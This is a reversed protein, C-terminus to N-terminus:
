RFNRADPFLEQQLVKKRVQTKKNETKFPFGDKEDRPSLTLVSVELEGDETLACLQDSWNECHQVIVHIVNGQKQVRGEVMILRSQLIEKRYINEFLNKFVVLNANGTEDEITMFCIGGATGPRQRVLVLGAVRVIDGDNRKGLEDIPIVNGTTLKERLFSVPHEKLSLSLSSYDYVVHESLSMEPLPVNTEFLSESPQGKFLGFPNDKLATIEWLAQRRDLGISRFADADALQILASLLVGANLIENVSTFMKKRGAVLTQIDEERAGKIQRFGLRMSHYKNVKEELTNDWFSYNIDVPRAEVGHKIAVNVIQLPGYFGM